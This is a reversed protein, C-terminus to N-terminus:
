GSGSKLRIPVERSAISGEAVLEQRIRAVDFPTVEWKHAHAINVDSLHAQERAMRVVSERIGRGLDGSADGDHPNLFRGKHEERSSQCGGNVSGLDPNLREERSSQAKKRGQAKQMANAVVAQWDPPVTWHAWPNSAPQQIVVPVDYKDSPDLPKWTIAYLSCIGGGAKIHGIRTRVILGARELLMVGVGLHKHSIGYARAKDQTFDLDGNNRGRYQAAIGTLISRAYHPQRRWADSRLVEDPVAAFHEGSEFRGQSRGRKRRSLV